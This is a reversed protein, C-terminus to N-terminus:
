GRVGSGLALGLRLWSGLEFRLYSNAVSNINGIDTSVMVRAPMAKELERLVQRPHLWNDQEDIAQRETLGNTVKDTMDTPFDAPQCPKLPAPASGELTYKWDHDLAFVTRGTGAAAFGALLLLSLLWLM